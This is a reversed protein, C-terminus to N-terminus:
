TPSAPRLGYIYCLSFSSVFYFLMFCISVNQLLIFCLSVYQFMRYCFSELHFMNFCISVNQLLIFCFSVFHFTIFCFLLPPSRVRHNSQAEPGALQNQQNIHERLRLIAVNRAGQWKAAYVLKSSGV